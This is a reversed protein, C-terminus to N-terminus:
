QRIERSEAARRVRQVVEASSVEEELSHNYRQSVRPARDEESLVIVSEGNVLELYPLATEHVEPIMLLLTDGLKPPAPYRRDIKCISFPGAEFTGAPFFIWYAGLPAQGKFVEQPVVRLLQGPEMDRFGYQRGTVTAKFVLESNKGGEELTSREPALGEWYFEEARVCGDTPPQGVIGMLEQRAQPSPYLATNIEGDSHVAADAAVFLPTEASRWEVNVYLVQPLLPRDLDLKPARESAMSPPGLLLVLLGSLFLRM